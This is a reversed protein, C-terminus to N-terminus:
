KKAAAPRRRILVWLRTMAFTLTLLAAYLAATLAPSNTRYGLLPLGSKEGTIWYICVLHFVYAFLSEKGVSLVPSAGTVGRHELRWFLVFLAFVMGIRMMMWEPSDLWFNYHPILQTKRLVMGAAFLVIGCGFIEAMCLDDEEKAAAQLFWAGALAGAWSFIAWPFLPFLPNHLGNLYNAFFPHLTQSFDVSWLFPTAVLAGAALVSVGAYFRWRERLLVCLLLLFILSLAIAQLIDAQYFGALDGTVIAPKWGTWRVRPLHLLYGLIWIWAYRRLLQFFDPTFRSLSEFKRSVLISFSVGSIFLFSPAVLGNIQNLLSFWSTGRLSELLWANVSHTEIMVVVAWGRYHDVFSYRKAAM